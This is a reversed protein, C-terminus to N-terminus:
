SLLSREFAYMSQLEDKIRLKQRKIIKVLEEDPHPRKDEDELKAELARHQSKLSEVKEFAGM